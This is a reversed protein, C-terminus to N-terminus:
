RHVVGLEHCTALGELADRAIQIALQPTFVEVAMAHGLSPGPVFEMDIALNNEFSEFSNIRVINPHMISAVVRAEQKFRDIFVTDTSLSPYLVKLAIERSLTTDVALYVVGM